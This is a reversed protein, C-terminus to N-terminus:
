RKKHTKPQRAAVFLTTWRKQADAGYNINRIALARKTTREPHWGNGDPERLGYCSCHSGNVEYLVGKREYVVIAWGDNDTEYAAFLIEKATPFDAPVNLGDYDIFDRIVDERSSWNCFYKQAM